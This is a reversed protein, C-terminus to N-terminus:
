KLIEGINNIIKVVIDYKISLIISFILISLFSKICLIVKIKLSLLYLKREFYSVQQLMFSGNLPFSAINTSFSNIFVIITGSPLILIIGKLKM